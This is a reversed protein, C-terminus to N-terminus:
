IEEVPDCEKWEKRFNRFRCRDYVSVCKMDASTHINHKLPYQTTKHSANPIPFAAVSALCSTLTFSAFSSVFFHSIFYFIFAFRSANADWVYMPFSTRFPLPPHLPPSPPTYYFFSSPFLVFVFLSSPLFSLQFNSSYHATSRCKNTVLISSMLKIKQLYHYFIKKCLLWRM